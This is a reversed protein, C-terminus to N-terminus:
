CCKNDQVVHDSLILPIVWLVQAEEVITDHHVRFIVWIPDLCEELCVSPDLVSFSVILELFFENVVLLLKMDSSEQEKDQKIQIILENSGYTTNSNSHNLTFIIIKIHM